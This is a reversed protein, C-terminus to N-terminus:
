EDKLLELGEATLAEKDLDTERQSIYAEVLKKDDGVVEESVRRLAVKEDKIIDLQINPYEKKWALGREEDSHKVCLRVYNSKVDFQSVQSEFVEVSDFRYFKPANTEITEILWNDTDIFSFAKVDGCEGFNLQLPSGIYHVRNGEGFFQRKHFDGALVYRCKPMPLDKISLETKVHMDYQGVAAESLGQHLLILDVPEVYTLANKLGEVDSTHPFARIAGEPLEFGMPQDIVTAFMKFTEMSHVEGVKTYQDHNGVLMYLDTWESLAKFALWTATHVDVDLSTRCHFVDGLFFCADVQRDICIQRAQEVINLCDQFRSNRGNPLKTAFQSYNHCHLDSFFLFKM